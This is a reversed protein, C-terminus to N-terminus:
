KRPLRDPKFLGFESKFNAFKLDEVRKDIDFDINLGNYFIKLENPKFECDHIYNEIHGFRKIDIFEILRKNIRLQHINEQIRYKFTQSVYDLSNLKIFLEEISNLDNCLRKITENPLGKVAKGIGDSPDGSLCKYFIIKDVTPPFGFEIKFEESDYIKKFNFWVIDRGQYSISRSWDLDASVLIISEKKSLIDLIPLVLDDAELLDVYAIKYQSSYSSLLTKLYNLYDYFLKPMKKRTSKYESSLESRLSVKSTPNDFLCYVKVWSYGKEREIKKLSRLTLEVTKQYLTKGTYGRTECSHFSRHYINSLDAIIVDYKKIM